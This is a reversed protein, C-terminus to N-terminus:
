LSISILEVTATEIRLDVGGLREGKSVKDL